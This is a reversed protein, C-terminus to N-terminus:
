SFDGVGARQTFRGRAANRVCEIESGADITQDVVDGRDLFRAM